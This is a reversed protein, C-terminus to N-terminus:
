GDVGGPRQGGTVLDGFRERLGLAAAESVGRQCGMLAVARRQSDGAVSQGRWFREQLSTLPM